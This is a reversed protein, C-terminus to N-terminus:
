NINLLVEDLITLEQLKPCHQLVFLVWEWRGHCYEPKFALELHILNAFTPLDYNLIKVNKQM